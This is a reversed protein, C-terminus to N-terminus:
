PVDLSSQIIIQKKNGLVDCAVKIILNLGDPYLEMSGEVDTMYLTSNIVYSDNSRVYTINSIKIFSGVGFTKETKPKLSVDLVKQLYKKYIKNDM